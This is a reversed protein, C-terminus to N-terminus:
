ALQSRQNPQLSFALTASTMLGSQMCIRQLSHSRHGLHCPRLTCHVFTARPSDLEAFPSSSTPCVECLM